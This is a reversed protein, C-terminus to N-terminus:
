SGGVQVLVVRYAGRGTELAKGASPLPTPSAAAMKVMRLLIEQM